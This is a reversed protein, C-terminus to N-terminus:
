IKRRGFYFLIFIVQYCILDLWDFTAVDVPLMVQMIELFSCVLWLSFLWQTPIKKAGGWIYGFAALLSSCWCADSFWGPLNVSKTKSRVGFYWEYLLVGDRGAYYSWIGLLLFGISAFLWYSRKSMERQYSKLMLIVRL